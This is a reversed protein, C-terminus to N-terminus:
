LGMVKVLKKNKNQVHKDVKTHGFSSPILAQNKWGPTFSYSDCWGTTFLIGLHCSIFFLVMLWQFVSWKVVGAATKRTLLGM